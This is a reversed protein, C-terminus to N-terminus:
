DRELNPAHQGFREFSLPEDEMSDPMAAAVQRRRNSRALVYPDVGTWSACGYEACDPSCTKGPHPDNTMTEDHRPDQDLVM